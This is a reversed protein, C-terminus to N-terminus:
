KKTFFGLETVFKKWFEHNEKIGENAKGLIKGKFLTSKVFDINM